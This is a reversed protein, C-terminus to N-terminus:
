RRLHVRLMTRRLRGAAGARLLEDLPGEVEDLSLGEPADEFPLRGHFMRGDDFALVHGRELRVVVRLAPDALTADLADMARALDTPVERGRRTFAAELYERLYRWTPHGARQLVPAVYFQGPRTGKFEWERPAALVDVAAPDRASLAELVALGDVLVSEGGRRAPALCALVSAELPELLNVNDTHLSGGDRTRSYRAGDRLSGRRADYVAYFLDGRENQVEPRGLLCALAWTGLAVELDSLDRGLDVIGFGRGLDLEERLAAAAAATCPLAGADVPVAAVDRIAQLRVPRRALARLEDKCAPPLPRVLARPDLDAARWPRPRVGDGPAGPGAFLVCARAYDEATDIEIWRGAGVRRPAVDHTPLFANLLHEWNLLRRAPDALFEQAAAALAPTTTAAFRLVGVAEGVFRLRALEDPTVARKDVLRAVRGREDVLAKACEEDDLRGEGVLISDAPGAALDALVGPDYAVDADLVVVERAGAARLGLWLSWANGLRAHDDNRVVRPFFREHARARTLAHRVRDDRYGVVVCLDRVGVQELASLHRELLSAGGVRLLCKPQDTVGAIRAGRGAALLVCTAGRLDQM